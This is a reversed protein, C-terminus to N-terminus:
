YSDIFAQVAANRSLRARRLAKGLDKLDPYADEFLESKAAWGGYSTSRSVLARRGERHARDLARTTYPIFAAGGDRLEQGLGEQVRTHYALSAELLVETSERGAEFLLEVPVNKGRLSIGLNQTLEEASWSEDWNLDADVLRTLADQDNQLQEALKPYAEEFPMPAHLTDPDRGVARIAAAIREGDPRGALFKAATVVQDVTEPEGLAAPVRQNSVSGAAGSATTDMESISPSVVGHGTEFKSGPLPGLIALATVITVLVVLAVYHHSKM